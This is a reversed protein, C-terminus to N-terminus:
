EGADAEPLRRREPDSRGAEGGREQRQLQRHGLTYKGQERVPQEADGHQPQDGASRDVPGPHGARVPAPQDGPVREGAARPGEQTRVVVGEEFAKPSYKKVWKLTAQAKEDSLSPYNGAFVCTTTVRRLPKRIEERGQRDTTRIRESKRRLHLRLRPDKQRLEIILDHAAQEPTKGEDTEGDGTAHFTAVMIMWPGHEKGLTYEQNPDASIKSTQRALPAAPRNRPRGAPHRDRPRRGPRSLFTSSDNACEM